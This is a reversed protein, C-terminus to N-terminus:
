NIKTLAVMGQRGVVDLLWLSNNNPHSVDLVASGFLSHTWVCVCWMEFLKLLDNACRFPCKKEMMIEITSELEVGTASSQIEQKSEIM